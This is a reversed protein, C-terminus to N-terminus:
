QEKIASVNPSKNTIQKASSQFIVVSFVSLRRAIRRQESDGQRWCGDRREGRRFVM